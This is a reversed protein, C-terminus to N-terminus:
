IKKKMTFINCGDKYEYEVSDMNKKVLFIGLGGIAREEASLSIDPDDRELPNYPIGSDKLTISVEGNEATVSVEAEGTKDPYAYNAINIFMEELSLDIKTQEKFSCGNEELIDDVFETVKGLNEATADVKLTRTDNKKSLEICLMTMDDFQPAGNVFENAREKVGELVDKLPKEKNENLAAVTREMGFMKNNVDTAEPIGDTYLFLRDGEGLQIEFDIFETDPMAGVVINHKTGFVEFEGDKRYLVADDHGANAATIKGTSIELIGLWLTVFMDAKNHECINNNVYNLIEAPTGGMHTRDSILINTVMMFLAAPVGKGSVDGIVFALHDDDILFFNYFDGGVEKAPTMSGYIDFEKREPFAPFINPISNEQIVSAVSLEAGIREKEATVSTLNDIYSLMDTEMTDISHALKSIESIRSIDGLTEGKKNEKAFRTAEAAVKSVPTLFQKRIYFSAFVSTLIAFLLASLASTILYPRMGAKLESMPRQVCLLAVVEGSSNKVPAITTIHPLKGNLNNTRYVDQYEEQQTYVKEYKERYEDNTTDRKFGLEWPEYDTGGIENDVSNFVSVFRGYDSTDVKIVYILSVSIEKCYGDLYERTQEYEAMDGTGDLYADISDGNVITAATRAIHYTTVSYEKKFSNNFSIFGITSVIVGFVILLAVIMGILNVAMSSRLKEITKM